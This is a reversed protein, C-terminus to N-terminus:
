FLKLIYNNTSSPSAATAGHHPAHAARVSSGLATGLARPLSRLKRNRVRAGSHDSAVQRIGRVEATVQVQTLTCACACVPTGVCLM